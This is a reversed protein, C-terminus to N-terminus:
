RCVAPRRNSAAAAPCLIPTDRAMDFMIVADRLGDRPGPQGIMSSLAVLHYVANRGRATLNLSSPM